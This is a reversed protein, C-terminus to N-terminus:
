SWFDLSFNGHRNKATWNWWLAHPAEKNLTGKFVKEARKSTFLGRVLSSAEKQVSKKKWPTSWFIPAMMSFYIWSEAIRCVYKVIHVSYQGDMRNSFILLHRSLQALLKITSKQPWFQLHQIRHQCFYLTSQQLWVEITTPVSYLEYSCPQRACQPPWLQVATQSLASGMVAHSGATNLIMTVCSYQWDKMTLVLSCVAPNAPICNVASALSTHYVVSTM